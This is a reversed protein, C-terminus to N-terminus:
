FTVNIDYISEEYKLDVSDYCSWIGTCTVTTNRLIRAIHVQVMVNGTLM